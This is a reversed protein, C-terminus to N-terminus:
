SFNADCIESSLLVENFDGILLWPDHISANFNFLYDWLEGRATPTPSAYIASCVWARSASVM